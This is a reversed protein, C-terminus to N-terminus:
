PHSLYMFVTKPLTRKQAEQTLKHEACKDHQSVDHEGRHSVSFGTHRIKCFADTQSVNSKM